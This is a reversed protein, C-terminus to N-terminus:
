SNSFAKNLEKKANEYDKPENANTLAKNDPVKILHIESNILVKRPCSYGQSLFQYLTLYSKPEWIAVLPEPFQEQSDLFATAIKAPNRNQILFGLTNKDIFPLDCAVVLWALEPQSMMASLIGGMPGLNVFRDEIKNTNEKAFQEARGSYYVEECFGSLLDYVYERQPKGHYDLMGKDKGMRTSKGGMLVLGNLKPLNAQMFDEIFAIIQAKQNYYFTPLDQKENLEEAIYIQHSTSLYNANVLVLDQENFLTKRHFENPFNPVNYQISQGQSAFQVNIIDQSFGSLRISRQDILAIKYKKALALMIAEMMKRVTDDNKAKIGIENKGFTGWNKRVLKSTKDQNCCDGM